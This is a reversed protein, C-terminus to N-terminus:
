FVGLWVLLLCGGGWFLSSLLFDLGIGAAGALVKANM